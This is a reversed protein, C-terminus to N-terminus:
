HIESVDAIGPRLACVGRVILDIKVGARSAEYLAQIVGVEALSNM